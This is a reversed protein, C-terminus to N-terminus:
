GSTILVMDDGFMLSIRGNGSSFTGSLTSQAFGCILMGLFMVTFFLGKNMVLEKNM